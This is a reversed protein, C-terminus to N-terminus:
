LSIKNAKHQYMKSDAIEFASEIAKNKELNVKSFGVSITCNAIQNCTQEIYQYREEIESDSTNIAIVAFEDGGIRFIKYNEKGFVQLLYDATQKLIKDGQLHGLTDNIYKFHDIDMMIAHITSEDSKERELNNIEEIYAMRNKLGTLADSYAIKHWKKENTLQANLDGLKKRQVLFSFFVAYIALITLCILGYPILYEKREILPKPYSASFILLFYIALTAIAMLGWGETINKLLSRYEKFLPKGKIYIVLMLAVVIPFCIKGIVPGGLLEAMRAFYAIILTVTDLLCFTVLFRFDKYKSLSFFLIFSPLTACLFSTLAEPMKLYFTCFFFASLILVSGAYMMGRTFLNDKKPVTLKMYILINFILVIIELIIALINDM